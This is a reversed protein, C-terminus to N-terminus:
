ALHGASTRWGHRRASALALPHPDARGALEDFHQVISEALQRNPRREGYLVAQVTKPHVGLISGLEPTTWGDAVLTRLLRM